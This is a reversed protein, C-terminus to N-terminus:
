NESLYSSKIEFTVLVRIKKKASTIILKNQGLPLQITGM